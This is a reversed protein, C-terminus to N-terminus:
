ADAFLNYQFIDLMSRMKWDDIFILFNSQLGVWELM